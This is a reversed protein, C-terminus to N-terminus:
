RDPTSSKTSRNVLYYQLGIDAPSWADINRHGAMSLIQVIENMIDKKKECRTDSYDRVDPKM